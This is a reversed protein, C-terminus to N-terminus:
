ISSVWLKIPQTLCFTGHLCNTLSDTLLSRCGLLNCTMSIKKTKKTKKKLLQTYQPLSSLYNGFSFMTDTAHQKCCVSSLKFLVCHLLIFKSLRQKNFVWFFFFFSSLAKWYEGLFVSPFIFFLVYKIFINGVVRGM